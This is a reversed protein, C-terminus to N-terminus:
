GVMTERVMSGGGEGEVMSSVIEEARGMAMAVMFVRSVSGEEGIESTSTMRAQSASKESKECAVRRASDIAWSM